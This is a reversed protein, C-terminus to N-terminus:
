TPSALTTGLADLGNVSSTALAAVVVVSVDDGLAITVPWGNVRVAVTPRTAGEV